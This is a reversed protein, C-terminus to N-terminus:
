FGDFEPLNDVYKQTTQIVDLIFQDGEEIESHKIVTLINEIDTDIIWSGNFTLKFAAIIPTKTIEFCVTNFQTTPIEELTLSSSSQGVEMSKLTYEKGIELYKHIWDKDGQYGNKGTPVCIFKHTDIYEQENKTVEGFGGYCKKFYIGILKDLEDERKMIVTKLKKV